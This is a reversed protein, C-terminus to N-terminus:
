NCAPFSTHSAGLLTATCSTISSHSARLAAAWKWRMLSRWNRAAQNRISVWGLTNATLSLLYFCEILSEVDQAVHFTEAAQAFLRAAEALLELNSERTDCLALLCKAKLRYANGMLYPHNPGRYESFIHVWIDELISLACNPKHLSKLQLQALALSACLSLKGLHYSNAM